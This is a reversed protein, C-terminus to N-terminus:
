NAITKFVLSINSNLAAGETFLNFIGENGLFLMKLLMEETLGVHLWCQIDYAFRIYDKFILWMIWNWLLKAKFIRM